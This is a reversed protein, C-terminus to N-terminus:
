TGTALLLTFFAVIGLAVGATFVWNWTWVMHAYLPGHQRRAERFGRSRIQRGKPRDGYVWFGEPMALRDYIYVAAVFLGVAATLCTVAMRQFPISAPSPARIPVQSLAAFAFGALLAAVTMKSRVKERLGAEQYAVVPLRFALRAGGQLLARFSDAELCVAEIRELPRARKSTMRTLLQSLRPEHGVVGVVQLGSLDVGAAKSEDYVHEFSDTNRM